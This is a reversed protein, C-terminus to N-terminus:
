DGSGILEIDDWDEDDFFCAMEEKDVEFGLIGSMVGAIRDIKEEKTAKM